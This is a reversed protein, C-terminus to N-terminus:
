RLEPTLDFFRTHQDLAYRDTMGAVYDAVRRALRPADAPDLGENWGQPMDSPTALFHGYLDRLVQMAEQMVREVREHRYMRAFLFRKIAAESEQMQPSFGILPRGLARVEAASAVGAATARADSERVVDEILRTIVRRM